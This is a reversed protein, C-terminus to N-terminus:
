KWNTILQFDVLTLRYSLFQSLSPRPYKVHTSYISLMCEFSFFLRHTSDMRTKWKEREMRWQREAEEEKGTREKGWKGGGEQIGRGERGKEARGEERSEEEREKKWSDERGEKERRGRGTLKPNLGPFNKKKKTLSSNKFLLIKLKTISSLLRIFLTWASKLNQGLRM